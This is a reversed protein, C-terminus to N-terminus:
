CGNRNFNVYWILQVLPCVFDFDYICNIRSYNRNIILLVSRNDYLNVYQHNLLLKQCYVVSITRHFLLATLIIITMERPTPAQMELGPTVFISANKTILFSIRWCHQSHLVFIVAVVLFYISLLMSPCWVFIWDYTPPTHYITEALYTGFM